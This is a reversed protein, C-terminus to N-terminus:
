DRRLPTVNNPLDGKITQPATARVKPEMVGVEVILDELDDCYSPLVGGTRMRDLLAIFRDTLTRPMKPTSATPLLAAALKPCIPATDDDDWRLRCRACEHEGTALRRAECEDSM